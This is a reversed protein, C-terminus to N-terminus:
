LSSDTIFGSPRPRADQLPPPQGVTFLYRKAQWVDVLVCDNSRKCMREAMARASDADRTVVFLVMPSPRLGQVRFEFHQM